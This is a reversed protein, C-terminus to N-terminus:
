MQKICNKLASAVIYLSDVKENIKGRFVYLVVRLTAYRANIAFFKLVVLQRLVLGFRLNLKM